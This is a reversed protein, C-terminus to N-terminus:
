ASKRFAASFAKQLTSLQAAVPNSGANAAAADARIARDIQIIRESLIFSAEILERLDEPLEQFHKIHEPRSPRRLKINERKENAEEFSIEGDKLSRQVLLWSAIELLRTTLRMSETAYVVSVPKALKRSDRRGCGDLYAATTEVLAMGEQFIDEFQDSMAFAKGFSLPVGAQAADDLRDESMTM